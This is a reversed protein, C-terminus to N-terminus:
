PGWWFHVSSIPFGRIGSAEFNLEIQIVILRVQLDGTLYGVKHHTTKLSRLSNARGAISGISSGAMNGKLLPAVTVAVASSKRRAQDPFM